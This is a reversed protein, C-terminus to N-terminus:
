EEKEPIEILTLEAVDILDNLLEVNHITYWKDDDDALTIDWIMPNNAM